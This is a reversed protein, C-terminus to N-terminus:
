EMGQERDRAEPFWDDDLVQELTFPCSEPLASRSVALKLARKRAYGYASELFEPLRSKLSPNRAIRRDLRDRHDLIEGMWHRRSNEDPSMALAM